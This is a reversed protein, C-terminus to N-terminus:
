DGSPAHWPLRRIAYPQHFADRLPCVVTGKRPNLANVVMGNGIYIAAHQSNAIIDGPKADELRDVATGMRAQDGSVRPLRVGFHAFVFRVFASCDWGTTESTGGYVYKHGLYQQAWGGPNRKDEDTVLPRGGWGNPGEWKGVLDVSGTAFGTDDDGGNVSCYSASDSGSDDGDDSTSTSASGGGKGNPFVAADDTSWGAKDLREKWHNASDVRKQKSAMKASQEPREYEDELVWTAGAVDKQADAKKFTASYGGSLEDIMMQVQVAPDSWKKNMSNALDLLAFARSGTWQVVGLGPGRNTIYKRIEANGMSSNAGFGECSDWRAGSEGYINGLLAAILKRNLRMGKLDLNEMGALAKAVYASVRDNDFDRAEDPSVNTDPVGDTGDQTDTCQGAAQPTDQPVMINMIYDAHAATPILLALCALTSVTGNVAERPIHVRM